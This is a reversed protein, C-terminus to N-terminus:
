SAKPGVQREDTNLNRFFTSEGLNIDSVDIDKPGWKQYLTELYKKADVRVVTLGELSCIIIDRVDNVTSNREAYRKAEYVCYLTRELTQGDHHQRHLLAMEALYGGEGAVAFGEHIRASDGTLKLLIPFNDGDLFGAVICDVDLTIKAIADADNRFSEEPLIKKSRELFDDYTLGYKVGVYENCRILKLDRLASRLINQVSTEDIPRPAARMQAKLVPMLANLDNTAGATLCWWGKMLLPSKHVNELNGLLGSERGDTCLVISADGGFNNNCVAAICVTV